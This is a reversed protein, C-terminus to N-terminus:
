ATDNESNARSSAPSRRASGPSGAPAIVALGAAPRPQPASPRSSTGPPSAAAPRAPARWRARRATRACARLAALRQPAQEGVRRQQRRVAGQQGVGGRRPAAVDVDRQRDASALSSSQVLRVSASAISVRCSFIATSDSARPTSRGARASLCVQRTVSTVGGQRVGWVEGPMKVFERAPAPRGFYYGQGETCGAARLQELQEATEVGEATTVMGLGSASRRSRICSRRATSAPRSTACSSETSRSRTSRSAACIARAVFLRHRFRGDRHARRPQAARAPDRADDDNDQLFVRSPSRSSSGARPCGPTRWRWRGRDAGSQPEQVADALPQGRGQDADALQAAESAPRRAAGMRRDARDPRDGRRASHVRGALGHRAGSPALAAAGRLRHDRRDRPQGAAPLLARVRRQRAGQAPRARARPAGAARADM